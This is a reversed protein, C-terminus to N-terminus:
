DPSAEQVLRAFCHPLLQYWGDTCPGAECGHADAYQDICVSKRPFPPAWSTRMQPVWDRRRPPFRSTISKFANSSHALRRSTDLYAAVQKLDKIVENIVKVFWGPSASSGQPMILQEYLGTPTCFATLPVTDKHAKIQHVSSVLDFPSFERRSGLTDLVQDVRPIPLQNLKSIQNGKKYNVTSRVGLSTNSIVVVPSSYPSTSHRILGAALYQNLTAEAEKALIPNIRHPRSTVPTSGESVSNEFPMLSCSGLTRIRPASCMPFNASCM